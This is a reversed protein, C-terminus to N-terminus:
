AEIFTLLDWLHIQAADRPFEFGARALTDRLCDPVLDHWCNALCGTQAVDIDRRYVSVAEQTDQYIVTLSLGLRSETLQHWDDALVHTVTNLTHLPVGAFHEELLM